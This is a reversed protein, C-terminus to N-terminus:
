QKLQAIDRGSPEQYIRLNFEPLTALLHDLIEAQIAEYDAWAQVKSFVYIELPLGKSEPQLLRVLFTMDLNIDDRSKLYAAVYDRFIGSNTIRIGNTTKTEIIKKVLKNQSIKDIEEEGVFHVSNMDLYLARKIRRGGSEEMGRWNNFSQSVLAYTPITAITKDWNQVKVTNLTIEIVIGDANHIPMSIWDGLRVMDNASIQIGAVLGLISDRFVLMLVAAMAGLGGVFVAPEKNLLIALIAVGFMFYTFIKLVQIYSKISTGRAEGTTREYIENVGNLFSSVVLISLVLMYIATGKEILNTLVPVNPFAFEITLLVLVAPAYHAVRSFVKKELLIDDWLTKTKRILRTLLALLIRKTLFDVLLGLVAIAILIVLVSLIEAFQFGLGLDMLWKEITIGINEKM